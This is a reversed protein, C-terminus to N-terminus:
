LLYQMENYSYKSILLYQDTYISWYYEHSIIEQDFSKDAYEDRQAHRSQSLYM